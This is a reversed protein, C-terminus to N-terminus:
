RVRAKKTAPVWKRSEEFRESLLKVGSGHRLYTRYRILIPVLHGRPKKAKSKAVSAGGTKNKKQKGALQSIAASPRHTAKTQKNM